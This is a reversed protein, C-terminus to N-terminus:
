SRVDVPGVRVWGPDGSTLASAAEKTLAVARRGDAHEFLVPRQAPPQPAATILQECLMRLVAEDMTEGQDEVVVENGDPATLVYHAGIHAGADFREAKWGNPVQGAATSAQASALATKWAREWVQFRSYFGDKYGGRSWKLVERGKSAEYAEFQERMEDAFKQITDQSV